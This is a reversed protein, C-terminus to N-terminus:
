VTQRLGFYKLGCVSVINGAMRIEEETYSDDLISGNHGDHGMFIPTPFIWEDGYFERFLSEIVHGGYDPGTLERIALQGM